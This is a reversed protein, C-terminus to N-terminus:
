EETTDSTEEPDYTHGMVIAEDLEPIRPETPHLLILKLVGRLHQETEKAVATIKEGTWLKLNKNKKGPNQGHVLWSRLSYSQRLGHYIKAREEPSDGLLYAVRLPARFSLEAEETPLILSELSIWYDIVRDEDTFRQRAYNFRSFPVDLMRMIQAGFALYVLPAEEALSKTLVYQDKDTLIGLDYIWFDFRQVFSDPVDPQWCSVREIRVPGPALLRLSMIARDFRVRAIGLATEFDHSKLSTELVFEYEDGVTLSKFLGALGETPGDDEERRRRLLTVGDGFSVPESETEFNRLVAVFIATKGEEWNKPLPDGARGARVDSM